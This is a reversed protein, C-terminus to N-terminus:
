YANEGKFLAIPTRALIYLDFALSWNEIYYLDHEVRKLIKDRTDTEGRWGNIQAWGTIGPKVKHRAFYGDVVDFYLQNAAKAKTAHPRPGVLSLTGNLVNLFQPLEDLSTRRIFRGVRTIRPDGRTALREANHDTLDAYMSRFKYVEILENNFGFRRQKFFIPGKSDLKIAIAILAFIPSLFLLALGAIIRDELAKIFWGWDGLPKDYVDLFPVPGVYSYARPRYRLKQNQASIRVDVPLVWLRKLIQMLREEAGVPLTVLLMDVRAQRVFDVLQSISGLKRLKGHQPPVREDNRDDFVGIIRVDAHPDNNIADHLMEAPAGGGVIVALKNLQGNANWHKVLLFLVNRSIMLGAAGTVYWLALWLRSFEHDTKSLMITTAVAVYLLSWLALMSTMNALPNLLSRLSYGGALQMVVPFAVALAIVTPLYLYDSGLVVAGPYVTATVWGFLFVVSAEAFRALTSIIRLSVFPASTSEADEPLTQRPHQPSATFDVTPSVASLQQEPNLKM